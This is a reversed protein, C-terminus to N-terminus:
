RQLAPAGPERLRYLEYEGQVFVSQFRQPHREALARMPSGPVRGGELVYDAGIRRFYALLESDGAQHYIASSRGTYLALVRPKRFVIVADPETHRRVHEYTARAEPALPGEATRDFDLGAYGVGYAALMALALVPLLVPVGSGVRRRVRVDLCELATLAYFLLLPVVPLFYRPVVFGWPLLAACYVLFFVEILTFPGSLRLLYGACGLILLLLHLATVPGPVPGGDGHWYIRSQRAYGYVATAVTRPLEGIRSLVNQRFLEGYGGMAGAGVVERAEVVADPGGDGEPTVTIFTYQVAFLGLCLGAMAATLALTSKPLQRFRLAGYGLVALPLALGLARTIVAGGMALLGLAAWRGQQWSFPVARYMRDLALLSLLTLLMFPVDSIVQDALQIVYPSLGFFAVLATLYPPTLRGHFLAAAVAMSVAVLVCLGVKMPVLDLGFAAYFPSLMLPFGPPYATPARWADPTQIYGTDAYPRGEVLNKAHAVYQAFDTAWSHGGDVYLLSLTLAMAMLGLLALLWRRSTGADEKM